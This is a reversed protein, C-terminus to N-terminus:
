PTNSGSPDSQAPTLLQEGSSASESESASESPASAEEEVKEILDNRIYGEQMGFKVPIWGNSENGRQEVITGEELLTVIESETNPESRMNVEYLTKYKVIMNKSPDPVATAKAAPLPPATPKSEPLTSEVTENSKVFLSTESANAPKKKPSCATMVTILCLCLLVSIIKINKNM